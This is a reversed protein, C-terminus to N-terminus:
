QCKLQMSRLMLRRIEEIVEDLQEVLHSRRGHLRRSQLEEKKEIPIDVQDGRSYKDGTSSVLCGAVSDEKAAEDNLHHEFEGEESM